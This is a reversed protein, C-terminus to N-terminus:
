MCDTYHLTYQHPLQQMCLFDGVCCNVVCHKDLCVWEFTQVRKNHPCSAKITFSHKDALSVWINASKFVLLPDSCKYLMIITSSTHKHIILMHLQLAYHNWQVAVLRSQQSSSLTSNYHHDRHSILVTSKVAPWVITHMISQFGFNVIKQSSVCCYTAVKCASTKFVATNLTKGNYDTIFLM